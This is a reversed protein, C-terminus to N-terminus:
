SSTSAPRNIGHGHASTTIQFMYGESPVISDVSAENSKMPVNYVGKDQCISSHREYINKTKWPGLRVTGLKKDTELNKMRGVAGCETFLKHVFPELLLGRISGPSNQHNLVIQMMRDATLTLFRDFALDRIYESAWVYVNNTYLSKLNKIEETKTLGTEAMGADDGSRKLKGDKGTQKGAKPAQPATTESEIDTQIQPLCPMMHFFSGSARDHDIVSGGVMNLMREVDEIAGFKKDIAELKEKSFEFVTRPICGYKRVRANMEVPSSNLAPKDSRSLLQRLLEMEDNTPLPLFLAITDVANIDKMELQVRGPSSIIVLPGLDQFGTQLNPAVTDCIHWVTGCFHTVILEYIGTNIFESFNPHSYFHGYLHIICKKQSKTPVFIIPPDEFTQFLQHILYYGQVSKGIGPTGSIFIPEATTPNDFNHQIIKWHDIYAQRVLLAPISAKGIKWPKGDPAHLYRGDASMKASKCQFIPNFTEANIQRAGIAQLRQFVDSQLAASHGPIGKIPSIPRLGEVDL